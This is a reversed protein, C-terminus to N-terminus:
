DKKIKFIFIEKEIPRGDWSSTGTHLLKRFVLVLHKNETMYKYMGATGDSAGLEGVIIIYKEEGMKTKEIYDHCGYYDAYGYDKNGRIAAKNFRYDDYPSPSIMLLVNSVNAYYTVATVANCKHFPIHEWRVKSDIIDTSLWKHEQKIMCEVIASAYCNGSMIDLVCMNKLPNAEFFKNIEDGVTDIVHTPQTPEFVTNQERNYGDSLIKGETWSFVIMERIKPSDIDIPL